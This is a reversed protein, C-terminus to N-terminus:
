KVLIVQTNLDRTETKVNIFYTGSMLTSIDIFQVANNARKESFVTKGSQDYMLLELENDNINDTLLVIQNDSQYARLLPKIPLIDVNSLDEEIDVTKGNIFIYKGNAKNWVITAVELNDFNTNNPMNISVEKEFETETTIPADSILEGFNDDMLSRLLYNKHNANSGQSQQFAIRSKEILYAGVYFEGQEQDEYFKAKLKLTLKDGNYKAEAGIGVFSPFGNLTEVLLDINSKSASVNSNANVNDNNVFFVPQGGSSFNGAMAIGISNSLDGSFHHTWLLIEDDYDDYVQQYLNWGWSGCFTCWTASKKTVLTRQTADIDQAIINTSFIVTLILITFINKM